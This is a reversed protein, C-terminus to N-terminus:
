HFLNQFGSSFIHLNMLSLLFMLLILSDLWGHQLPAQSHSQSQMISPTPAATIRESNRKGSEKYANLHRANSYRRARKSEKFNGVNLNEKLLKPILSSCSDLVWIKKTSSDRLFAVQETLKRVNMKEKNGKILDLETCM